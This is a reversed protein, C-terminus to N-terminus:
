GTALLLEMADEKSLGAKITKGTDRNFVKWSSKKSEYEMKRVPGGLETRAVRPEGGSTKTVFLQEGVPEAKVADSPILSGPEVVGKEELEADSMADIKATEEAFTADIKELATAKAASKKMEAKDTSVDFGASAALEDSIPNGSADFYLGPVTKCMSILPGGNPLPKCILGRNPNIDALSM